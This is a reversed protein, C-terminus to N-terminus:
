RQHHEYFLGTLIMYVGRCTWMCEMVLESILLMTVLSGIINGMEFMGMATYIWDAKVTFLIVSNRYYFTWWNKTGIRYRKLEIKWASVCTSYEQLYVCSQESIPWGRM